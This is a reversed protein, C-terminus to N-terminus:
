EPPSQDAAPVAEQRGRGPPGPRPRRHRQEHGRTHGPRGREADEIKRRAADFAQRIAVYVDDQAPQFDVLIEENPVTLRIRVAYFPGKRHHGHEAKVWVECRLIRRSYRELGLARQRIKAEVAESPEMGEVNIELPIKM